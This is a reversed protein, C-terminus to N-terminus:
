LAGRVCGLESELLPGIIPVLGPADTGRKCVISHELIGLREVAYIDRAHGSQKLAAHIQARSAHNVNIRDPGKKWRWFIDIQKKTFEADLEGVLKVELPLCQILGFRSAVQLTTGRGLPKLRHHPVSVTKYGADLSVEDVRIKALKARVIEGPQVDHLRDYKQVLRAAARKEDPGAITVSIWKTLAISYTVRLNKLDNQVMAEFSRRVKDTQGCVVEMLHVTRM